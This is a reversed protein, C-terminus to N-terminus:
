HRQRSNNRKISHTYKKNQLLLKKPIIEIYPKWYDTIYIRVNWKKLRQLLKKLTNPIIIAVNGTLSNDQILM